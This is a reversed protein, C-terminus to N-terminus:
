PRNQINNSTDMIVHTTVALCFVSKEKIERQLPPLGFYDSSDDEETRIELPIVVLLTKGKPITVPLHFIRSEIKPFVVAPLEEGYVFAFIKQDIVGRFQLTFREMQVSGDDLVIPLLDLFLGESTRNVYANAESNIVSNSGGFIQETSDKITGPQGSFMTVKPAQLVNSRSNSQCEALLVSFQSDDLFRFLGPTHHEICYFVGAALPPSNEPMVDALLKRVPKKQDQASPFLRWGQEATFGEPAITSPVVSLLRTEVIVQPTSEDFEPPVANTQEDEQPKQHANLDFSDYIEDLELVTTAEKEKRQAVRETDTLAKRVNEAAEIDSDSPKAAALLTPSTEVKGHQVHEGILQRLLWQVQVTQSFLILILLGLCCRQIIKGYNM